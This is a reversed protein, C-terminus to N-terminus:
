FSVFCLLDGEAVSVRVSSGTAENSISVFHKDLTHNQLEWKLGSSTVGTAPGNIPILSLTQGPTMELTVTKDIAFCRTEETEFALKGPYRSLIILNTLTHDSRKELAAFVTVEDVETWDVTSLALELDTYDKDRPFKEVPTEKFLDLTSASISDLDGVILDPTIGMAKCHDAGGDIAIVQPYNRLKQLIISYDSLPASCVLAIRKLSSM